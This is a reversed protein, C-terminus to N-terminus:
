ARRRLLGRERAEVGAGLELAAPAVCRRPGRRLQLPDEALVAEVRGARRDRVEEEGLDAVVGPRQELRQERSPTITRGVPPKPAGPAIRTVTPVGSSFSTRRRPARGRGPSRSACARLPRLQPRGGPPEIEDGPDRAEPQEEERRQEGPESGPEREDRERDVDLVAGVGPRPDAREQDRVDQGRDHDPQEGAREDVPERALAQHDAASRSRAAIKQASGTRSWRRRHDDGQGREGPDARAEEARGDVRPQRVEDVVRSRGSRSRRQDLAISFRVQAIPGSM